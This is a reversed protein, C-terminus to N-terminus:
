LLPDSHIPADTSAICKDNWYSGGRKVMKRYEAEKGDIFDKNLSYDFVFINGCNDKGNAGGTDPTTRTSDGKGTRGDNCTLKTWGEPEQGSRRQHNPWSTGNCVVDTGDILM